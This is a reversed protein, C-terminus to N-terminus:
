IKLRKNFNQPKDNNLEREKKSQLYCDIIFLNIFLM